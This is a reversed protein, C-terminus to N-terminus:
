SEDPPAVAMDCSPCLPTWPSDHEGHISVRRRYSGVREPFHDLMESEKAKGAKLCAQVKVM